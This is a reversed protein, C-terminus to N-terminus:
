AGADLSRDSGAVKAGQGALIMALPMMGSGGIGVFFYPKRHQM